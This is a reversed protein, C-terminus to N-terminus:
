TALAAAGIIGADNALAAPTVPLDDDFQHAFEEWKRSVGGGFIILTPSFTREVLRLFRNARAGWEDWSLDERRRAKASFKIEAPRVGELELMGLEVNPLLEGNHLIGSGIGTGFTLVVVTGPVGKAKGFAAEALAAADADNVIRVVGLAQGFAEFVDMGWWSEDINNASHVIGERIIAPFGIGIPGESDIDSVIEVTAAVVAEPTSPQPTKIRLREGVLEGRDVDVLGAKVGSGGIDVGVRTNSM